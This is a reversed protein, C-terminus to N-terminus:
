LSSVYKLFSKLINDRRIKNNWEQWLSDRSFTARVYNVSQEYSMPMIKLGIKNNYAHVIEVPIDCKGNSDDLYLYLQQAKLM